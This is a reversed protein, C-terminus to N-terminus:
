IIDLKASSNKTAEQQTNTAPKALSEQTDAINDKVHKILTRAQTKIMGADRIQKAWILPLNPVVKM